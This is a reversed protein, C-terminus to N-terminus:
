KLYHTAIKRQSIEVKGESNVFAVNLQVLMDLAFVTTLFYEVFAAADNYPSLFTLISLISDLSWSVQTRAKKHVDSGM